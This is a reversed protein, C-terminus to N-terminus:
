GSDRPLLNGRLTSGYTGLASATHGTSLLVAAGIALLGYAWTLSRHRAPAARGELLLLVVPFVVLLVLFQTRALVAVAIGRLALLYAPICASGIVFANLFHAGHFASPVLRDGFLPAILLPYLQDVSPVLERHVRPLPSHGRAISIALREYLLEDTMVFWDAVRTTLLQLGSAAALWLAVLAALEPRRM